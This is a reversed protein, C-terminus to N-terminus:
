LTENRLTSIACGIAQILRTETRWNLLIRYYSILLPNSPFYRSPQDFRDLFAASIRATYFYLNRARTTVPYALLHVQLGNILQTVSSLNTGFLFVTFCTPTEHSSETPDSPEAATAEEVRQAGAERWYQRRGQALAILVAAMYADELENAPRLRRAQKGHLRNVPRNNRRRHPQVSVDRRLGVAELDLYALVPAASGSSPRSYLGDTSLTAFRRGDFHLPVDVSLTSSASYADAFGNRARRSRGLSTRTLISPLVHRCPQMDHALLLDRVLSTRTQAICTLALCKAAHVIAEASTKASQHQQRFMAKDAACTEPSARSETTEAKADGDAEVLVFRCDLLQLHRSRWHLPQVFLRERNNERIIANLSAREPRRIRIPTPSSTQTSSGPASSKASSCPALSQM